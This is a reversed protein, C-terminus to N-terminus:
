KNTVGTGQNTYGRFLQIKYEIRIDM